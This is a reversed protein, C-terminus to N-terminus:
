TVDTTMTRTIGLGRGATRAAEPGLREVSEDSSKAEVEAVFATGPVTRTYALEYEDRTALARESSTEADAEARRGSSLSRWANSGSGGHMKRGGGHSSGYYGISPVAGAGSEERSGKGYIGGLFRRALPRLTALSGATIGVNTETVTWITIDRSDWLWDGQKGYNVIYRVKVISAICAFVGLGLIMMLTVRTRRNVNLNWLMPALIIISFLLDTLINLAANTYSLGQLTSQPWCDPQITPDWLVRVDKCQFIITKIGSLPTLPFCFSHTFQRFSLHGRGPQLVNVPVYLSAPQLM